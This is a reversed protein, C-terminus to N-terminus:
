QQPIYFINGKSDIAIGRPLYCPMYSYVKFGDYDFITVSNEEADVVYVNDFSDVAIACPKIFSRYDAGLKEISKRNAPIKYVTDCACVYLVNHSDIAIDRPDHFANDGVTHSFTLDQHLVQICGNGRDSIYVRGQSDVAVNCPRAFQRDVLHEGDITFKQIRHNDRDAVVIDNDPTIAVGAPHRLQGKESGKEGIRRVIQGERVIAITNNYVETVVMVDDVSIAIGHPVLLEKSVYQERDCPLPLVSMTSPYCPVDTDGDRLIIYHLGSHTPTYTVRYVKHKSSGKKTTDELKCMVSVGKDDNYLYCSIDQHTKSPLQLDFSREVRVMGVVSGHGNCRAVEIGVLEKAPLGVTVVKGLHRYEKVLDEKPIFVVCGKSLPKPLSAWQRATAMSEKMEKKKKLVEDQTGNSLQTEVSEKCSILKNLFVEIEKKQELVMALRPQAAKDICEKFEIGSQQFVKTLKEVFKDVKNQTSQVQHDVDKKLTDLSERAALVTGIAQKLKCLHGEIEQKQKAFVATALDCTHNNHKRIACMACVLQECEECFMEMDRDHRPCKAYRETVPLVKSMEYLEIITNVHLAPPLSATSGDKSLATTNCCTPCKIEHQGEVIEVPLQNICRICFAHQCSLIKPQKYVNSCIKCTAQEKLKLTTDLAEAM